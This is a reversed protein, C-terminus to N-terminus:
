RTLLFSTIFYMTRKSDNERNIATERKEAQESLVSVGAGFGDMTEKEGLWPNTPSVMIIDPAFKLVVAASFITFNLPIAAITVSAVLM